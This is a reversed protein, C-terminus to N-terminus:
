GAPKSGNLADQIKVIAKEHLEWSTIAKRSGERAMSTSLRKEARDFTDEADLHALWAAEDGQRISKALLRLGPDLVTKDKKKPPTILPEVKDHIPPLEDYAAKLEDSWCEKLQRDLADLAANALDAAKRVRKKEALWRMVSWNVAETMLAKADEVEKLKQM